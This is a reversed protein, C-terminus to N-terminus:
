GTYTGELHLLRQKGYITTALVNDNYTGPSTRGTVYVKKDTFKTVVTSHRWTKGNHGQVIDGLYANDYTLAKETAYPGKNTDSPNKRTLFSYLENVGSWSSSRNSTSRYYWQDTGTIGSKGNDHMTAGGALLAHSVFNTCDYAGKIQSFDYYPVASNSSTPSNQNYNNRVWTKIDTRLLVNTSRTEINKDIGNSKQSTMLETREKQICQKKFDAVYDDMASQVNAVSRTSMAEQYEEDIPGYTVSECTNFCGTIVPASTTNKLISVKLVESMVTPEDNYYWKREVQMLLNIEHVNQTWSTEDFPLLNIEYGRYTLGYTKRQFSDMEIKAKLLSQLHEDFASLDHVENLDKYRYYSEIQEKAFEFYTQNEYQLTEAASAYAPMCFLAVILLIVVFLTLMKKKM